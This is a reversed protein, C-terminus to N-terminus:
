LERKNKWWDIFVMLGVIGAGLMTVAFTGVFIAETIPSMM